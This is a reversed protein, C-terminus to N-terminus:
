NSFSSKFTAFSASALVAVDEFSAVDVFDVDDDVVTAAAAAAVAAIVSLLAVVVFSSLAVVSSFSCVVFQNRREQAGQISEISRKSFFFFFIRFKYLFFFDCFLILFLMELSLHSRVRFKRLALQRRNQGLVALWWRLLADRQRAAPGVRVKAHLEGVSPKHTDFNAVFLREFREGVRQAGNRVETRM